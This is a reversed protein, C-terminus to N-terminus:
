LTIGISRLCQAYSEVSSAKQKQKTVPVFKIRFKGITRAEAIRKSLPKRVADLLIHASSRNPLPAVFVTHFIEILELIVIFFVKLRHLLRM